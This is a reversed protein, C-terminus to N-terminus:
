TTAGLGGVALPYVWQIDISSSGLSNQVAVFQDPDAFISGVWCNCTGRGTNRSPVGVTVDKAWFASDPERIRVIATILIRVPGAPVSLVVRSGPHLGFRAAMQTTVAGALAGRLPAEHAYSGAVLQANAPLANRYAVEMEPPSNVGVFALPGAGAAVPLLHSALGSWAGAALPVAQRTLGRGIERQTTTLQAPTLDEQNGLGFGGNSVNIAATFQDWPAEVQVTKIIPSTMAMTQSLAQTRTRLSVAPGTMAAFVCAGVLLALVAVSGATRATQRM